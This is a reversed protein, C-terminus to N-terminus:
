VPISAPGSLCAPADILVIFSKHFDDSAGQPDLYADLRYSAKGLLANLVTPRRFIIFYAQAGAGKLQSHMELIYLNPPSLRIPHHFLSPPTCFSPMITSKESLSRLCGLFQLLFLNSDIKNYIKEKFVRILDVSYMHIKKITLIM